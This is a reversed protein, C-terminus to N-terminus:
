ISRDFSRSKRITIRKISGDRASSIEDVSGDFRPAFPLRFLPSRRVNGACRKEGCYALRQRGDGVLRAVGILTKPSVQGIRKAAWVSQQKRM